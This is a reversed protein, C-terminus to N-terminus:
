TYDQQQCFEHPLQSAIAMIYKTGTMQDRKHRCRSSTFCYPQVVSDHALYIASQNHIQMSNGKIGSVPTFALFMIQFANMEYVYKFFFDHDNNIGM